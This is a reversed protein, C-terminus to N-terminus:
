FCRLDRHSCEVGSVVVCCMLIRVPFVNEVERKVRNHLWSPSRCQKQQRFALGSLFLLVSGLYLKSYRHKYTRFSFLLRARKMCSCQNKTYFVHGKVMTLKSLGQFTLISKKVIYNSFHQTLKKNIIINVDYM